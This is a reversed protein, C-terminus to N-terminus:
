AAVASVVPILQAVADLEKGGGVRPFFLRLAGSERAEDVLDFSYKMLGRKVETRTLNELPLVGVLRDPKAFAQNAQFLFLREGTVALYMPQPAMAMTMAGGTLIAAAVGMALNKKLSIESLNVLATAEVQEGPELLVAVAVLLARRRRANM